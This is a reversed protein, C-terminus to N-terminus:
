KGGRRRAAAGLAILGMSALAMTGPEPVPAVPRDGRGGRGRHHRTDQFGGGGSTSTAPDDVSGEPDQAFAPAAMLALLALPLLWRKM